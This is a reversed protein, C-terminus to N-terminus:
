DGAPVRLAMGPRIHGGDIANAEALADVSVGLARAIEWLTDGRRVTYTRAAAAPARTSLSVPRAAPRAAEGDLGAYRTYPAPFVAVHFHAPRREETAELVGEEELAVLTSRLWRLCKAKRPKRLDVAMGTPHVSLDSANRPQRTAPRVASTVVLPEGCAERYQAGLRQVFTRTVPRLWPYGVRALTVNADPSVRVLEGARAARRVSTGTEHFDLREDLAQQYMRDISERSGRLSQAGARGARGALPAAALVAILALFASSAPPRMPPRM